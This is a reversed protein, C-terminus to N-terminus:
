QETGEKKAGKVFDEITLPGNYKCKAPRGQQDFKGKIETDVIWSLSGVQKRKHVQGCGPCRPDNTEFIPNQLNM